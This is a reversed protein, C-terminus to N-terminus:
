GRGRFRKLGGRREEFYGERRQLVSVTESARSNIASRIAM